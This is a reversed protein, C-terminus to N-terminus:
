KKPKDHQMTPLMSELRARTIAPAEGSQISLVGEIMLEM